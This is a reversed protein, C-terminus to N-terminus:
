IPPFVMCSENSTNQQPAPICWFIVSFDSSVKGSSKSYWSMGHFRDPIGTFKSWLLMLGFLIKMAGHQWCWAFWLEMAVENSIGSVADFAWCSSHRQHRVAAMHGPLTENKHKAGIPFCMRDRLSAFMEFKCVHWMEKRKLKFLWLSHCRKMLFCSCWEICIGQYIEFGTQWLQVRSYPTTSPVGGVLPPDHQSCGVPDTPFCARHFLLVIYWYSLPLIALYIHIDHM